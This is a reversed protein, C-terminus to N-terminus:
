HYETWKGEKNDSRYAGEIKLQGNDFFEQFRGQRLDNEYSEVVKPLGDEYFAKWTGQLKGREYGGAVTRTNSNVDFEESPGHLRHELYHERKHLVGKATLLAM